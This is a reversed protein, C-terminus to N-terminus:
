QVGLAAELLATDQCNETMESQYIPKPEFEWSGGALAKHLGHQESEWGGFGGM